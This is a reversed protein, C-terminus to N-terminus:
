GNIGGASTGSIIDIVVRTRVEQPDNKWLDILTLYYPKASDPLSDWASGPVVASGCFAPDEGADCELASSALALHHLERANGYMYIALLVGGYCIIAARLERVGRGKPFEPRVSAASANIAFLVAMVATFRRM